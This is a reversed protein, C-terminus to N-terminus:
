HEGNPDQQFPASAATATLLYEAFRAGIPTVELQYNEYDPARIGPVGARHMLNFRDLEGILGMLLSPSFARRTNQLQLFTISVSKHDLFSGARHRAIAVAQALVDLAGISLQDLCRAFHDLESYSLKEPDQPKLLANTMLRTAAESREHHHSRILILYATKFLEAFEEKNMSETSIRDGLATLQAGFSDVAKELNRQTSTPIYDGILSAIAGGVGPVIGVAAKFAALAHDRIPKPM